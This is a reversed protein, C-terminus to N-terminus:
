RSAPPARDPAQDLVTIRVGQLVGVVAHAEELELVGELHQARLWEVPLTFPEGPQEKPRLYRRLDLKGGQLDFRAPRGAAPGGAPVRASGRYEGGDLRLRLPDLRAGAAEVRWAAHLELAGFVEADRTPPLEAGLSATFARLSPMALTLEGRGAPTELDLLGDLRAVAELEGFRVHLRSAELHRPSFRVAIAPADLALRLGDTQLTGGRAVAHATPQTLRLTGAAPDYHVGAQLELGELAAAAGEGVVRVAGHRVSLQAISLARPTAAAGAEAPAGAAPELRPWHLAGDAGRVLTLALGDLTLSELKAEGHLLPSWRAEVALLQWQALPATGAVATELRAAGITVKPEPWAHWRVEGDIRLALGTAEHVAKEVRGKLAAPRLMVGLTAIALLILLLVIGGGILLGRRRPSM